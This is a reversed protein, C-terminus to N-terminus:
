KALTNCQPNQSHQYIDLATSCCPYYSLGAFTNLARENEESVIQLQCHAVDLKALLSSAHAQQQQIEEHLSQIKHNLTNIEQTKSDVVLSLEQAVAGQAQTAQLQPHFSFLYSCLCHYFLPSSPLPLISPFNYEAYWESFLLM